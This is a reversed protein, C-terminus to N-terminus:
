NRYELILQLNKVEDTVYLYSAFFIFQQKDFSFM